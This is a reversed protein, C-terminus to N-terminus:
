FRSTISIIFELRYVNPSPDPSLTTFDYNLNYRLPMFGSELARPQYREGASTSIGGRQYFRAYGQAGMSLAFKRAFWYTYQVRLTSISGRVAEFSDTALGDARFTGDGLERIYDYIRSYRGWEFGTAAAVNVEGQKLQLSYQGGLQLTFTELQSSYPHILHFPNDLDVSSNLSSTEQRTRYAGIGSLILASFHQSFRGEIELEIRGSTVDRPGNEDPEINELGLSSDIYRITQAWHVKRTDAKQQGYLTPMLMLSLSFTWLILRLPSPM